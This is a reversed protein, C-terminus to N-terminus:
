LLGDMVQKWTTLFTFIHELHPEDPNSPHQKDDVHAEMWSLCDEKSDFVLRERLWPAAEDDLAYIGRPM